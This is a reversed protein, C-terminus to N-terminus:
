MLTTEIGPDIISLHHSKRLGARPPDVVAVIDDASQRVLGPLIGPLIDEAKGCHFVANTIGAFCVCVYKFM